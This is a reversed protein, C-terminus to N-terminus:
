AHLQFENAYTSVSAVACLRSNQRSKMAFNVHVVQIVEWTGPLVDRNCKHSQLIGFQGTVGAGMTRSVVDVLLCKRNCVHRDDLSHRRRGYRLKRRQLSCRNMMKLYAQSSSNISQVFFNPLLYKVTIYVHSSLIPALHSAIGVDAVLRLTWKILADLIEYQLLGSQSNGLWHNEVFFMVRMLDHASPNPSQHLKARTPLRSVPIPSVDYLLKEWDIL